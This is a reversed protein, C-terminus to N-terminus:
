CFNINLFLKLIFRISILLLVCMILEFSSMMTIKMVAIVIWIM